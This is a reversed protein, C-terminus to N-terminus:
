ATAVWQCYIPSVSVIGAMRRFDDPSSVSYWVYRETPISIGVIKLGDAKSDNVYDKSWDVGCAVALDLSGYHEIIADVLSRWERSRRLSSAVRDLRKSKLKNASM